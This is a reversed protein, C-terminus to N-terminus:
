RAGAGGDAFGIDRADPLALLNDGVYWEIYSQNPLAAHNLRAISVIV